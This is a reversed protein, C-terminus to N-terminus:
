MCESLRTNFCGLQLLCLGMDAPDYSGFQILSGCIKIKIKTTLWSSQAFFDLAAMCSSRGHESLQAIVGVAVQANGKMKIYM